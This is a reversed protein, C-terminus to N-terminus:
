NKWRVKKSVSAVLGTVLYYFVYIFDLVPVSWVEFRQSLTKSAKYITIAVVMLRFALVMGVIMAMYNVSFLLLSVFWVALWTASFLGLLVKHRFRYLRGVSLHRVKQSFFSSWTQKPISTVHADATLQVTTNQSDAHRNILLDDDGGTIHVYGHFGKKEMFFSKRYALNRGVGMYPSGLLAFSLYQLATMLAEYRVFLNLFGPAKQYPSFGLVFKFEDSFATSMSRVWEKGSPRCDADTLLLWEFRAAKIGLTLAYKKGNTHPPTRNVHVMRLRHNKKTESLLWDFTGDNSRDDVVIVEFEPYDQEMLMPVLEKLNHEEDHACVIISVPWPLPVSVAKPKKSFATLFVIFYIVQVLAAALFLIFVIQM